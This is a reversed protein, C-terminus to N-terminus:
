KKRITWLKLTNYYFLDIVEIHDSMTVECRYQCGWSHNDDAWKINDIKMKIGDIAFYLPIMKGEPNFSAIAAVPTQDQLNIVPAEKDKLAEDLGKLASFPAFQKARNERSMYPKKLQNRYDDVRQAM